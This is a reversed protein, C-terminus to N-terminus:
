NQLRFDLEDRPSTSAIGIRCTPAWRGVLAARSRADLLPALDGGALHGLACADIAPLTDGRLPRFALIADVIAAFQAPLPRATETAQAPLERSLLSLAVAPMALMAAARM